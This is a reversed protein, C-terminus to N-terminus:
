RELLALDHCEAWTPVDTRAALDRIVKEPVPRERQANRQLITHFPPELYVVEIRAGYDDFLEIWRQRTQKIVNTANFSFSTGSRLFKRCQERAAQIVKGQNDTPAINMDCRIEDLSIAASDSRHLSLWTDKGSGPIGVVLTVQCCYEEHPVYYLDFEEHRFFRFRARDNAFGYRKGFCDNEEAVMKWLHVNEEPRSMEITKRGRTDALAFLYLSRNNVLWSLRAVEHQPEKKSLLFAPRGHYRVMQTIEERLSLPCGLERLIGRAVHEGKVAHKPSTTRGTSEDFQTTLPKAIDHFIATFILITKESSSLAPWEDLALLESCVVKTHTWVDGEAHWGSDQNCRSMAHCWPQDEAWALIDELPLPSLTAWNM